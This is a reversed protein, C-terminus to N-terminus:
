GGPSEIALTKFRAASPVGTSLGASAAGAVVIQISDPSEAFKLFHEDPGEEYNGRNVVDRNYPGFSRLEGLRRGFHEYLYDRADQKSWGNRHLLQAHVPGMVITYARGGGRHWVGSYSMSDAITGLVQKPDSSIRNEIHFASRANGVTVTSVNAAFGKEVHLPEWPSEEENEAICFGYQSPTGQTSQDFEPQRIGLSNMVILRLARGVTANARFGPGFVGGRSNFGLADRIPGNVIVLNSFGGTSQGGGTGGAAVAALVVPFHEKLCGAMIANIAALEVTCVRDLHEVSAVVEKPDRGVYEVFERVRASTPPVVPLGDTWNQAYYYEISRYAVDQVQRETLDDISPLESVGDEQGSALRKTEASGEALGLISLIVDLIGEVRQKSEERTLNEVPHPLTAYRYGPLGQLRAM